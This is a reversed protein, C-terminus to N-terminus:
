PMVVPTSRNPNESVDLDDIFWGEANTAGDDSILRFRLKVNGLGKWPSLDIQQRQWTARSSEYVGYTYNTPGGVASIELRVWDATNLGYRDWFTLVPWETNRLDVATEIYNDASPQYQGVPVSSLSATGGHPNDPNVAWTSPTADNSGSM